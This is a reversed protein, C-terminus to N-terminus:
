NSQGSVPEAPTHTVPLYIRFTTGRGLESSVWIFGGSQKVIGYVTALGLGDGKGQEKTTFFPEFIHARTTEDIGCGTDAVALMVYAGPELPAHQDAYAADLQVNATEITLTGGDPMADNANVALNVLIQEVSSPDVTVAELDSALAVALEIGDGILRRMKELQQVLLNVNVIQPQLMQRRSFALLQRTLVAAREGARRIEEHDPRLPDESPVDDLMLNCYGLIATLLNNFDHAVGGALRGVADMKHSRRLEEERRGRLRAGHALALADRIARAVVGASLGGTALYDAAGAKMATVAAEESGGGALVIVPTEIGRQRMERLLGPGDNVALGYDCFAVDFAAHEFARLAGGCSRAETIDTNPWGGTQQVLAMVERGRDM